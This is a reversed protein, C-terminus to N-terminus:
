KNRYLLQIFPLRSTDKGTFQQDVSVALEKLPVSNQCEPRPGFACTRWLHGEHFILISWSPRFYHHNQRWRDQNESPCLSSPLCHPSEHFNQISGKETNKVKRCGIRHIKSNDLLSLIDLSVCHKWSVCETCEPTILQTSNVELRANNMCVNTWWQNPQIRWAANLFDHILTSHCQSVGLVQELAM